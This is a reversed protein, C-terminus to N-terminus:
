QQEPRHSPSGQLKGDWQSFAERAEAIDARQPGHQVATSVDHACTLATNLLGDSKLAYTMAHASPGVWLNICPPQILDVLDRTRFWMLLRSPLGSSM